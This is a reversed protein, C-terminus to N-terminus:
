EIIFVREGPKKMFFKERAYKEQNKTLDEKLKETTAIEDWLYDKQDELQHITQKLRWQTIFANKDFFTLWVVFISLALVYKNLLLQVCKGAYSFFVAASTARM